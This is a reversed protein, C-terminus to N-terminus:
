PDDLGVKLNDGVQLPRPALLERQEFVIGLASVEIGVDCTIAKCTLRDVGAQLAALTPAAIMAPRERSSKRIKRSSRSVCRAVAGSPPAAPRSRPDALPVSSVTSTSRQGCGATTRAM